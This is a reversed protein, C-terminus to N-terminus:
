GKEDIMEKLSAFEQDKLYIKQSFLEEIAAKKENLALFSQFVYSLAVLYHTRKSIRLFTKYRGYLQIVKAYDKKHWLDELEEFRNEKKVPVPELVKLDVKESVPPPSPKNRTKEWKEVLLRDEYTKLRLDLSQQMLFVEDLKKEILNLKQSMWFFNKEWKNQRQESFSASQCAGLFGFVWFLLYMMSFSMCEWYRLNWKLSNLFTESTSRRSMM